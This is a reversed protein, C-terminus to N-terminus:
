RVKEKGQQPWLDIRKHRHRSEQGASPNMLGMKRYEM